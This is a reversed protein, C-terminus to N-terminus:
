MAYICKKNNNITTMTCQYTHILLSQYFNNNITYLYFYANGLESDGEFLDSLYVSAHGIQFDIAVDQVNFHKKGKIQITNGQIIANAEINALIHSSINFYIM